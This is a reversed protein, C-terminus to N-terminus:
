RPTAGSANIISRLHADAGVNDARWRYYPQDPVLRGDPAVAVTATVTFARGDPATYDPWTRFRLPSPLPLPYFLTPSNINVRAIDQIVLTFDALGETGDADVWVWTHGCHAKYCAHAPAEKRRGVHLWGAPLRGLREAVGFHRGPSHDELPSALLAVDEPTLRDPGYILWRCAARMAELKEPVVIPDLTWNEVVQRSVQANLTESGFGNQSGAGVAHQWLTTSTLQGADTIQASGAFISSYAPLAMPDSAVMALNDLVEHYRLDVASGSQAVTHRELSVTTCGALTLVGVLVLVQSKM